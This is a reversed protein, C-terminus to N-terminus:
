KFTGKRLTEAWHIATENNLLLLVGRHPNLCTRLLVHVDAEHPQAHHYDIFFLITHTIPDRRVNKHPEPTLTPDVESKDDVPWEARVQDAIVLDGGTPGHGSGQTGVPELRPIEYYPALRDLLFKNIRECTGSTGSLKWGPQRDRLQTHYDYVLKCLKDKEHDHAIFHVM